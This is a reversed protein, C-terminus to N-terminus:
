GSVENTSSTCLVRAARDRALELGVAMAGQQECILTIAAGLEDAFVKEEVRWAPMIWPKGAAKCANAIHSIDARDADTFGYRGRGRTLSLDSCGVFLGDVTPLALIATVDDFSEATEVMPICLTAANDEEFHTPSPAGYRVTRAGAYSRAGMPPYKAAACVSRAHEVTRIHPIVVGTAGFDLAQQIPEAHPGEVKVFVDLGLLRAFPILRDLDKLDFTGHEVDLVLTGYGLDAALEIFVIDPAALWCGISKM